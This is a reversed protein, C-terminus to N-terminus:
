SHVLEQADSKGFCGMFTTFRKPIHTTIRTASIDVDKSFLECQDISHSAIQPAFQPLALATM